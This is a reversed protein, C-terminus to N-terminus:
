RAPLSVWADATWRLWPLKSVRGRPVSGDNLRFARAMSCSRRPTVPMPPWRESRLRPRCGLFIGLSSYVPSAARDTTLRETMVSYFDAVGGHTIWAKTGTVLYDNGDHVARTQLAAADSGSHPESLCYAGLLEGGLQDPLWEARQEDTGFVALPHCALTHVSVGIGVSLWSAALEELVQLYVAYPQGGGGHEEPYALGLLGAKGLTRFTERPFRKEAEYTAANPALEADAIERTLALLDHAEDTPLERDVTLAM